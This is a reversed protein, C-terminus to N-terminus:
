DNEILKGVGDFIIEESYQNKVKRSNQLHYFGDEKNEIKKTFFNNKM